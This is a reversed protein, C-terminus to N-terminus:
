RIRELVNLSNKWWKSQHHALRPKRLKYFPALLQIQEVPNNFLYLSILCRTREEQALCMTLVGWMAAPMAERERERGRLEWNESTSHDVITAPLATGPASSLAEWTDRTPSLFLLHDAIFCLALSRLDLSPPKMKGAAVGPCNWTGQFHAAEFPIEM